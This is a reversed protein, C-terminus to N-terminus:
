VGVWTKKHCMSSFLSALMYVHVYTFSRTVNLVMCLIVDDQVSVDLNIYCSEMVDHSTCNDVSVYADM